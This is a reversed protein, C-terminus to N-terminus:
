EGALITSADEKQEEERVPALCGCATCLYGAHVQMTETHGTPSYLSPVNKLTMASLFLGGGCQQCVRDKLQDVPININMQKPM